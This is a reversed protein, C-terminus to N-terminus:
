SVQMEAAPSSSPSLTDSERLSLVDNIMVKTAECVCLMCPFGCLGTLWAGWQRIDLPCVEKGRLCM